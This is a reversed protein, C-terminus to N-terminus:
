PWLAPSAKLPGRDGGEPPTSTTSAAATQRRFFELGEPGGLDKAVLLILDKTAELTMELAKALEFAKKISLQKRQGLVDSIYTRSWGLRRALFGYSYKRNMQKNREVCAIIFARYSDFELPNPVLM